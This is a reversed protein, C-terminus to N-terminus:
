FITHMKFISTFKENSTLDLRKASDKYTGFPFNQPYFNGATFWTTIVM